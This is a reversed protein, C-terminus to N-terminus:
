QPLIALVCRHRSKGVGDFIFGPLGAVPRQLDGRPLGQHFLEPLLLQHDEGDLFLFAPGAGQLAKGLAGCNPGVVGSMLHRTKLPRSKGQKIQAQAFVLCLMLPAVSLFLLRKM